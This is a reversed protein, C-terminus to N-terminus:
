IGEETGQSLSPDEKKWDDCTAAIYKLFSEFDSRAYDQMVRFRPTNYSAVAIEMVDSECLGSRCVKINEVVDEPIQSRLAAKGASSLEIEDWAAGYGIVLMQFSRMEDHGLSDEDHLFSMHEELEEIISEPLRSITVALQQPNSPQETIYAAQEESM